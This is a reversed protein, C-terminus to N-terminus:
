RDRNGIQVGIAISAVLWFWAGVAGIAIALWDLASVDTGTVHNFVAVLGGLLLGVTGCLMPEWVKRM